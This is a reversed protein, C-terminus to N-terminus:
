QLTYIGKGKILVDYLCNEFYSSCTDGVEVELIDKTARPLVSKANVTDYLLDVEDIWQVM